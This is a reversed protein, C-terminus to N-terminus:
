VQKKYRMEKKKSVSGQEQKPLLAILWLSSIGAQSVM